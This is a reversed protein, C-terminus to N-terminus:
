SKARYPHLMPPIGNIEELKNIIEKPNYLSVLFKYQSPQLINWSIQVYNEFTLLFIGGKRKSFTIGAGTAKGCREYLEQFRAPGKLAPPVRNWSQDWKQDGKPASKPGLILRLLTGSTTWFTALIPEM